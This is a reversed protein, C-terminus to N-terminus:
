FPCRMIVSLKSQGQPFLAKEKKEENLLLINNNNNIRVSERQGAGGGEGRLNVSSVDKSKM